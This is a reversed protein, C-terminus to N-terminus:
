FELGAERATDALVKLRGHYQKGGRDLVVKSTKKGIAKKAIDSGIWQAKETMTKKEMKRGVTTTAALTKM